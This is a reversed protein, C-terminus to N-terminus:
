NKRSVNRMIRDVARGVKGAVPNVALSDVQRVAKDQLVNVVPAVAM